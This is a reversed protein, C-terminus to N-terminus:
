NQRFSPLENRDFFRVERRSINQHRASQLHYQRLLKFFGVSLHYTPSSDVVWTGNEKVATRIEKASMNVRFVDRCDGEGQEQEVYSFPLVCDPLFSLSKQTRVDGKFLFQDPLHKSHTFDSNSVGTTKWYSKLRKSHRTRIIVHHVNIFRNVNVSPLFSRCFVM